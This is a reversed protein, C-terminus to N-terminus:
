LHKSRELLAREREAVSRLKRFARTKLMRVAGATMQLDAAIEEVSHGEIFELELVRRDREPLYELYSRVIIPLMVDRMDAVTDTLPEFQDPDRKARRHADSAVSRVISHLFGPFARPERLTHLSSFLRVFVENAFDAYEGRGSVRWGNRLAPEFRRLIESFITEVGAADSKQLWQLVEAIPLQELTAPDPTIRSDSSM